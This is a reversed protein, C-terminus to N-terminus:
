HPVSWGSMDHRNTLPLTPTGRKDGATVTTTMWGVDQGVANRRGVPVANQFAPVANGRSPQRMQLPRTDSADADPAVVIAITLSAAVLQLLRVFRM